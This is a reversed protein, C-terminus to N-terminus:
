LESILYEVYGIGNELVKVKNKSQIEIPKRYKFPLIIEGTTNILAWYRGKKVSAYGYSFLTVDDFDSTIKTNGTLNIFGWKAKDNLYPLLGSGYGGLLRQTYPLAQGGRRNIVGYSEGNGVVAYGNRFGAAEKYKYSVVLDGYWDIYGYLVKDITFDVGFKNQKIESITKTVLAMGNHFDGGSFCISKM